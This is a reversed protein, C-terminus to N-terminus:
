RRLGLREMVKEEKERMLKREEETEHDYGLLHLMSHVTLYAVEREFSHGYEEAQEKAKELSIVIDGIPYIEEADKEDEEGEEIEEFEMLPFSLVDTSSDIGRYYKNLKRIEENDVFSVSVEVEDVVEEEELTAKIARVVLAELGSADVKTQRNDILVNM